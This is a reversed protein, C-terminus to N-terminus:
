AYVAQPSSLVLHIAARARDRRRDRLAHEPDDGPGDESDRPIAPLEADLYAVIAERQAASLPALCLRSALADVLRGADGSAGIVDLDLTARGTITRGAHPLESLALALNLRPAVSGTQVWAEGHDWGAVSPPEFLQMGLQVLADELGALHSNQVGLGRAAGVVLEVPNKFRAFRREPAFFWRSAFLTRLAERISWDHARLEAAVEAVVAPDTAHDAFWGCLKGAIFMPADDRALILDLAEDGEREGRPGRRGSITTGFVEKDEPDHAAADFEFEDSDARPTTWGTFVRALETVDRQTYRDVGLTFLEVLERAWNENPSEKVSIRNDLFVLMAPDRAVDGLLARFSGSARRRLLFNQDRALRARTVKSAQCAFHDHWLLALKEVLPATTEVMRYLWRQRLMQKEVLGYSGVGFSMVDLEPLGALRAELADDREPHDVFRAVAAEPGLEVLERLEDPTAGFGARRALHAAKDADWPDDRTPQFPSLLQM